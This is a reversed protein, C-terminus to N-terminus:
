RPLHFFVPSRATASPSSTIPATASAANSSKAGPPLTFSRPRPGPACSPTGPRRGPLTSRACRSAWPEPPPPNARGRRPPRPPFSTPSCRISATGPSTTCCGTSAAPCPPWTSTTASARPAAPAGSARSAPTSRGPTSTSSAPGGNAATSGACPLNRGGLRVTTLPLEWLTTGAPRYPFRPADPEGYLDHRIPYVSSSYRHGEQELVAYAWPTRAGISFTPARYGPVAVGGLDELLCRARRIDARFSAEDLTHVLAHGYGHSALEHGAAVIRRVMGPHREAIWGLTFFTAHVGARAFQELIRDVNADVRPPFGDWGSRPVVGAFAQVQFYDEVDVTMANRIAM